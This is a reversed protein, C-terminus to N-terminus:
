DCSYVHTNLWDSSLKRKPMVIHDHMISLDGSIVKIRPKTPDKLLSRLSIIKILNIRAQIGDRPIKKVSHLMREQWSFFPM